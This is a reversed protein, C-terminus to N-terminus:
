NIVASLKAQPNDSVAELAELQMFSQQLCWKNNQEPLMLGALRTIAPNNRFGGVVETRRNIEASLRELSNTSHLQQRHTKPFTM